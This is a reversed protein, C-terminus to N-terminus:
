GFTKRLTSTPIFRFTNSFNKGQQSTLPAVIGLAQLSVGGWFWGTGSRAVIRDAGTTLKVVRVAKNAGVYAAFGDFAALDNTFSV